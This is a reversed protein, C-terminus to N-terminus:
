VHADERAVWRGVAFIVLVALVLITASAFLSSRHVDMAYGVELAINASLTRVPQFVSTPVQVINGAVMVVAMTEGLARAFALICGTAIGPRAAPLVVQRIAQWRSFGLGIAGRYYADPVAAIRAFAILAVTPLIMLTLVFSAALLSTGPQEVKAILPVVTTLGWFGLVVSPIGALIELLRQYIRGSWRGAYFALYVASVVGAPLALVCAGAAVVLSGILMATMQFRGYTPYWGEDSVLRTLGIERLFPIAEVAVTSVIVFVIGSSFLAAAWLLAALWRDAAGQGARREAAQPWSM